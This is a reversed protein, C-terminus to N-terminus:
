SASLERYKKLCESCTNTKLNFETISIELDWGKTVSGCLSPTDIGGGFKKGSETLKRIHWKSKSGALVSECFSFENM